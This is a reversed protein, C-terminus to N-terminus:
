FLQELYSNWFKKIAEKKAKDAEIEAILKFKDINLAEAIKVTVYNNLKVKGSKYESIRSKNIDLKKALAYDSPIELKKRVKELLEDALNKESKAIKKMKKNKGQM